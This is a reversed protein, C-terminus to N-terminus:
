LTFGYDGVEVTNLDTAALCEHYLWNIIFLSSILAYGVVAGVVSKTNLTSLAVACFEYNPLL